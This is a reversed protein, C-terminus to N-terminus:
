THRLIIGTSWAEINQVLKLLSDLITIQRFDGATVSRIIQSEPRISDTRDTMTAARDGRKLEPEPTTFRRYGNKKLCETRV